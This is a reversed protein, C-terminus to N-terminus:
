AIVKWADAGPILRIIPGDDWQVSVTNLALLGGDVLHLVTGRAGAKLVFPDDHRLYTLGDLAVLEIRDGVSIM